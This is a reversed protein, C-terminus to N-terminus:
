LQHRMNCEEECAIASIVLGDALSNLSTVDVANPDSRVLLGGTLSM